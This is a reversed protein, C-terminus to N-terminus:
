EAPTAGAGGAPETLRAHAAREADRADDLRGRSLIMAEYRLVARLLALARYAEGKDVEVRVQALRALIDANVFASCLQDCLQHFRQRHAVAQPPDVIMMQVAFYVRRTPTSAEEETLLDSGRLCNSQNHVIVEGYRQGIELVAGNILLKEGRRLKLHLPM